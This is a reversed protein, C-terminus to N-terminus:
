IHLLSTAKNFNTDWAAIFYTYTANVGPVHEVTLNGIFTTTAPAFQTMPVSLAVDDGKWFYLEATIEDNLCYDDTLGVTIVLVEDELPVIGNEYRDAIDVIGEINPPNVDDITITYNEVLPASYMTTLEVLIEWDEGLPMDQDNFQFLYSWNGISETVDITEWTDEGYTDDWADLNISLTYGVFDDYVNGTVLLSETVPNVITDIKLYPDENEISLKYGTMSTLLGESSAGDEIGLYFTVAGSFDLVVDDGFGTDLDRVIEMSYCEDGTANWMWWMEVDTQSATPSAIMDGAYWGSFITGDVYQTEDAFLPTTFDLNSYLPSNTGGFASGNVWFNPRTDNSNALCTIAGADLERKSDLDTM